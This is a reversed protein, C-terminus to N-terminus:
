ETKFGCTKLYHASDKTPNLFLGLIFIFSYVQRKGQMEKIIIVLSNENFICGIFTLNFCAKKLTSCAQILTTQTVYHKQCVVTQERM